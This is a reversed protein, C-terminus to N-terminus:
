ANLLSTVSLFLIFFASIMARPDRRLQCAVDQWYSSPMMEPLTEAVSEVPEFADDALIVRDSM